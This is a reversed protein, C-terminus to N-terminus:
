EVPCLTVFVPYHDAPWVGAFRKRIVTTERHFLGDSFLVHDIAPLLNIGRNFHFTSGTTQALTFGNNRLTMVAGFFKPANFDGFIVAADGPHMRTSVREAVLRASKLRNQPSGHDFHVNYVYFSRGTKRDFLRSWSCFAPYRGDWPRSYIVDPDPSFFFFGQGVAEFRERRYLIPQTSAFERPDGTASVAYEPFHRVIWDLQRNEENWHGGVFTEMEQFGIVDASGERLIEVVAERRDEWKMKKQRPSIYHINFTGFVIDNARDGRPPSATEFNPQTHLCGAVAFMLLWMNRVIKM